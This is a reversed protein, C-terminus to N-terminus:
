PMRFRLRYSGVWHYDCEFTFRALDVDKPLQFRIVREAAVSELTAEEERLDVVRGTCRVVSYGLRLAGRLRVELSVGDADDQRSFEVEVEQNKLRRVEDTVERGLWEAERLPISLRWRAANAPAAPAVDTGEGGLTAAALDSEVPHQAIGARRLYEDPSPMLGAAIAERGLRDLVAWWAEPLDDELAFLADHVACLAVPNLALGALQADDLAGLGDRLAAEHLDEPLRGRHRFNRGLRQQLSRVHARLTDRDAVVRELAEQVRPRSGEPLVAHADTEEDSALLADLDTVIVEDAKM